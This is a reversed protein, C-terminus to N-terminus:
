QLIRPWGVQLPVDEPQRGVAGVSVEVPIFGRGDGPPIQLSAEQWRGQELAVTSPRKGAVSVSITGSRTPLRLPLVALHATAPVYLTARGQAWRFHVGSADVGPRWLGMGAGRLDTNALLSNARFPVSAVIALAAAWALWSRGRARGAEEPVQAQGATALAVTAGLALWFVCSVEFVLLPHGTLWTLVFAGFGAAAWPLLGERPRARLARGVVRGSTWLAALFAALGVIGLEALVQLFNNHANERPITKALTPGIYHSSLDYFRGLGVGFAPATGTIRLAAKAMEYRGSMSFLVPRAVFLSAAVAAVLVAGLVAIRVPHALGQRWRGGWARGAIMAALVAPGAVLAVRSNSLWLGSLLLPVATWWLLGSVRTRTGALGGCVVLALDTISGVANFDAFGAAFRRTTFTQALTTVVGPGRLAAALFEVASLAGVAATGVVMMRLLTVPLRPTRRSLDVAAWYLAAGEVVLMTAPVVKFWAAGRFYHGVVQDGLRQVFPWPYDVFVHAVILRVACSAAAVLAYLAVARLCVREDRRAAAGPAAARHLLWGALFALVLPEAMAIRSDLLRTLSPGLPIFAVCTALSAAPNFAAAVLLGAVAAKATLPVPGALFSWLPLFPLAALLLGRVTAPVRTAATTSVDM